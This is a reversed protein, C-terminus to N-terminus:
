NWGRKITSAIGDTYAQIMSMEKRMEATVNGKSLRHKQFIGAEDKLSALLAKAKKAEDPDQEFVKANDPLNQLVLNTITSQETPSSAFIVLKLTPDGRVYYLDIFSSTTILSNLRSVLDQWVKGDQIGISESIDISITRPHRYDFLASPVVISTDGKEKSTFDIEHQLCHGARFTSSTPPSFLISKVPLQLICLVSGQRKQTKDTWLGQISLDLASNSKTQLVLNLENLSVSALITVCNENQLIPVIGSQTRINDVAPTQNQETCSALTCSVHFDRLEEAKNRSRLYMDLELDIVASIGQQTECSTRPRVGYRLRLIQPDNSVDVPDGTSNMRSAKHVTERGKKILASQVQATRELQKTKAIQKALRSEITQEIADLWAPEKPPVDSKNTEGDRVKKMEEDHPKMNVDSDKSQLTTGCQKQRCQSLVEKNLPLLKFITTDLVNVETSTPLFATAGDTLISNALISTLMQKLEITSSSADKLILSEIQPLILAQEYGGVGTFDAILCSGAGQVQFSSSSQKNSSSEGHQQPLDICSTDGYVDCNDDEFCEFDHEEEDDCVMSPLRINLCTKNNDSWTMREEAMICNDNYSSVQVVSSSGNNETLLNIPHIFRFDLNSIDSRRIPITQVDDSSADDSELNAGGDVHMSTTMENVNVTQPACHKWVETCPLAPVYHLVDDDDQEDSNAAGTNNTLAPPLFSLYAGDVIALPVSTSTREM